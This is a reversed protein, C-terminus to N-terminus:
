VAIADTHEAISFRPSRRPRDPGGVAWYAELVLRCLSGFMSVPFRPTNSPVTLVRALSLVVPPGLAVTWSEKWLGLLPTFDVHIFHTHRTGSLSERVCEALASQRRLGLLEINSAWPVEDNLWGGLASLMVSAAPGVVTCPTAIRESVLLPGFLHALFLKQEDPEVYGQWKLFQLLPHCNPLSTALPFKLEKTGGAWMNVAWPKSLKLSELRADGPYLFCSRDRSIWYPCSSYELTLDVVVLAMAGVLTHRVVRSRESWPLEIMRVVLPCDLSPILIGESWFFPYTQFPSLSM